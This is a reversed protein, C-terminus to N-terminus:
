VATGRGEGNEKRQRFEDLSAPRRGHMRYVFLRVIHWLMTFAFVGSFIMIVINFPWLPFRGVGTSSYVKLKFNDVALPWAYWAIMGYCVAGVLDSLVAIIDNVVGPLHNSIVDVSVLGMSLRVYSVSFFIMGIFLYTVWETVSPISWTFVKTTIINITVFLAIFFTIAGSLYSIYKLVNEIAVDVRFFRELASSENKV